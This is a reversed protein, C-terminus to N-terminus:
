PQVPNITDKPFCRAFVLLKTVRLSETIRDLDGLFIGNEAQNKLNNLAALLSPLTIWGPGPPIQSHPVVSYTRENVAWDTKGRNRIGKNATALGLSLAENPNKGTLAAGIFNIGSELIIQGLGAKDKSFAKFGRGGAAAKRRNELVDILFDIKVIEGERATLSLQQTNEVAQDRIQSLHKSLSHFQNECPDQTM